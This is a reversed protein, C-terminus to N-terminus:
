EYTGSGLWWTDDVKMVYGLKPQEQKTQPNEWTYSVWGSGSRATEVLEQIAKKGNLDTYDILNRGVLSPDGGHALVNGEFDCAYVYLEGRKFEGNQDTFEALAKEKGNARAYDVAGKVFAEVEPKTPATTKKAGQFFEVDVPITTRMVQPTGFTSRYSDIIRRVAKSNASTKEHVLLVVKTQQKEIGGDSKRMQGYSDFATLGAPFEETV